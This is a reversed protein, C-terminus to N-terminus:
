WVGKFFSFGYVDDVQKNVAHPTKMNLRSLKTEWLNYLAYYAKPNEDLAIIAAAYYPILVHTDPSNDLETEDIDTEETYREPYRDYEIIYDGIPFKPLLIKNPELIKYKNADLPMLNLQEDVPRHKLVRPSFFISRLGIYDEPMEIEEFSSKPKPEEEAEHTIPLSVTYTEIIPKVTTAIQMQADNILNLMRAKADAQDNYSLPVETGVISYQNLLQFIADICNSITMKSM